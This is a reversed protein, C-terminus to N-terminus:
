LAVHLKGPLEKGLEVTEVWPNATLRAAATELSLRVLNQGRLPSLAQEVWTAPVRATAGDITVERLEFRRSTLVWAVLGCPLAFLVLALSLPKVLSVLFSRRRRRPQTGPRHFDLVRGSASTPAGAAAAAALAGAPMRGGPGFGGGMGM